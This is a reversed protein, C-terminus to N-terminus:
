YYYEDEEDDDYIHEDFEFPGDCDYISGTKEKANLQELYDEKILWDTAVYLLETYDYDDKCHEIGGLICGIRTNKYLWNAYSSINNCWGEIHWRNDYVDGDNFWKYVLKCIAACAQSAMTEGEGYPLMYKDILEDFENFSSWDIKKIEM